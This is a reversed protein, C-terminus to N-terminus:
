INNDKINNIISTITTNRLARILLKNKAYIEKKVFSKSFDIIEQGKKNDLLIPINRYVLESSTDLNGDFFGMNNHDRDYIHISEEGTICIHTTNYYLMGEFIVMKRGCTDCIMSM